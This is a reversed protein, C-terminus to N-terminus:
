RQSISSPDGAGGDVEKGHMLQLLGSWVPGRAESSGGPADQLGGGPPSVGSGVGSCLIVAGSSGAGRTPFPSVTHPAQGPPSCSDLIRRQM